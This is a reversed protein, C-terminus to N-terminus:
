SMSEGGSLSRIKATSRFLAASSEHKWACRVGTSITLSAANSNSLAGRLYSKLEHVVQADKVFSLAYYDVENEVGFKIDDWDKDASPVRLSYAQMGM